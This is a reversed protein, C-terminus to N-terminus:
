LLPPATPAAGLRGVHLYSKGWVRLELWHSNGATLSQIVGLVTYLDMWTILPSCSSNRQRLRKNWSSYTVSLFLDERGFLWRFDWWVGWQVTQKKDACGSRVWNLALSPALSQDPPCPLSKRKRGASEESQQFGQVRGPCLDGHFVKSVWAWRDISGAMLNWPNKPRQEQKAEYPCFKWKLMHSHRAKQMPTLSKFKPGWAQAALVRLCQAM